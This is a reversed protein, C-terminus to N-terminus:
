SRPSAKSMLPNGSVIAMEVDGASAITLGPVSSATSKRYATQRQDYEQKATQAIQSLNNQLLMFDITARGRWDKQLGVHKELATAIAQSVLPLEGFYAGQLDLGKQQLESIILEVMNLYELGRDSDFNDVDSLGLDNRLLSALQYNERSQKNQSIKHRKWLLLGSGALCTIFAALGVAAGAASM